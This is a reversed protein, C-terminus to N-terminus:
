RRARATQVPNPLRTQEVSKRPRQTRGATLLNFFAKYPVANRSKKTGM